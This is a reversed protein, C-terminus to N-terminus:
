ASQFAFMCGQPAHANNITGVMVFRIAAVKAFATFIQHIVRVPTQLFARVALVFGGTGIAGDVAVLLPLAPLDPYNHAICARAHYAPMGYTGDRVAQVFKAPNTMRHINATTAITM